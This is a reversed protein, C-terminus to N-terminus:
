ASVVMTMERRIESIVADLELARGKEAAEEFVLPPLEAEIDRRLAEARDRTDQDSAPHEHIFSLLEVAKEREERDALLQSMGLLIELMLPTRQSATAVTLAQRYLTAAEASNGLQQAVNGLELLCSGQMSQYGMDKSIDLCERLYKQAKSYDGLDAAVCGLNVLSNAIGRRNDLERAIALSEGLLQQAETHADEMGAIAGLNCLLIWTGNRDGLERRVELSEQYRERAARNDGRASAINGLLALSRGVARKDQLERSLELSEELLRQAEAYEGTEFDNLGLKELAFAIDQKADLERALALGQELLESAQQHLGLRICFVGRRATVKALVSLKVRKGDAVAMTTQHQIAEMAQRFIEEGERARGRLDYYVFVSDLLDVLKEIKQHTIAWYGAKRINDIEEGIRDLVRTEEVGDVKEYLGRLLEEYYECHLQQVWNKEHPDERLRENAYQRLVELIEFRGSPARRVLSKDILASLIAFEAAAVKAAADRTFGGRFVSLRRFVRREVESLLRWSSDFVARLSKHRDPLDRLSSSLFDHNRQIERIIEGCSLVRTWASALEIALPIGEVLQAIQVIQSLEEGRPTFRPDLTRANQVFLQVADSDEAAERSLGQPYSLGALPFLVEGHLNLRERSTVIIKVGPARELIEALLPAGDTLHEFNDLVLLLRKEELQELLQPRPDQRDSLTLSLYEALTFTLSDTSDLVSLPVFCVGDPFATAAQAAGELALRTKGVGGPGTVNILRCSPSRLLKGIQRRERERGVFPTSAPPLNNPVPVGVGSSDQPSRRRLTPVSGGSTGKEERQGVKHPRDLATRGQDSPGDAGPDPVLDYVWSLLVAIPFGLIAVVVVFTVAVPPLHLAPFAADAVQVFAFAVAGYAIAVRIVKRRRLEAFFARLRLPLDRM